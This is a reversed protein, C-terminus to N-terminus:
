TKIKKKCSSIGSVKLRRIKGDEWIWFVPDTEKAKQLDAQHRLGVPKFEKTPDFDSDRISQNLVISGESGSVSRHYTGIPIQLVGMKQNLCIVHHPEEWEPNLLTFNRNGAIVLNHDVQHHHM